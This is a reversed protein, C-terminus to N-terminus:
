FHFDGVRYYADRSGPPEDFQHVFRIDLWCEDGCYTFVDRDGHEAIATQLAEILKSAKMGGEIGAAARRGM